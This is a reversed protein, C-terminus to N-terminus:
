SNEELALAVDFATQEDFHKTIVRSLSEAVARRTSKKYVVGFSYGKETRYKVPLLVNLVTIRARAKVM